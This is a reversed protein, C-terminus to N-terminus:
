AAAMLQAVNNVVPLMSACWAGCAVETPHWNEKELAWIFLGIIVVAGMKVAFFLLPDSVIGQMLPNMEQGGITIAYATTLYDATQTFAFAIYFFFPTM